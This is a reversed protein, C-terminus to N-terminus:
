PDKFGFDLSLMENKSELRELVGPYTTPNNSAWRAM